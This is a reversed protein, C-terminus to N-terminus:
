KLEYSIEVNATVSIQAARVTTGADYAASELMAYRAGGSASNSYSGSGGEAIEEIEGLTKGSAAAIVEAKVRADQVALELARVRAESDDVVSFNISDFTNAGASFAADIYTGIMDIDSTEITLSNNVTYGVLVQQEGGARSLSTDSIYEYRPNIYIYNTSIGKEDLGAALLADCIANVAANAQRQVDALDEGSMNVGLSASVRDAQMYVTGSGSVLLRGEDALASGAIMLLLALCIALMRKM